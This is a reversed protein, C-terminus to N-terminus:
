GPRRGRRARRPRRRVSRAHHRPIPERASLRSAPQRDRNRGLTIDARQRSQRRHARLYKRVGAAARRRQQLFQQARQRRQVSERLARALAGPGSPASPGSPQALAATLNLIADTASYSLAATFGAPLNSTTLTNFTTGNLGGAASLITYNRPIYSGSAFAAQVTGAHTAAG